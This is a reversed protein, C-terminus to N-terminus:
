MFLSEPVSHETDASQGQALPAPQTAQPEFIRIPSRTRPNTRELLDGLASRVQPGTFNHEPVMLLACNFQLIIEPRVGKLPMLGSAILHALPDRAETRNHVDTMLIGFTAEGVRGLMFRNGIIKQLKIVSRLISQEAVTAGHAQRITSHNVLRVFAVALGTHHSKAHLVAQDCRDAFILESLLGTLADRKALAQERVISAHQARSRLNLAVLLLPIHLIIAITVAHQTVWPSVYVGLLRGITLLVALVLPVHAAFVWMGVRDHRAWAWLSLGLAAAGMTSIYVGIIAAGQWRALGLHAIAAIPGLAAFVLVVQGLRPVRQKLMFIDHLFVMGASAAVAALAAQSLDAWQPLGPWLLLAAIGNYASVALLTVSSYIGYRLYGGDRYIAAQVFCFVIMLATGGFVAGFMLFELHEDTRQADHQVFDMRFYTPTAQRVALLVQLPTGAATALKFVAHRNPHSWTSLAITDGARQQTWAQGPARTYLVAHDLTPMPISLMWDENAQPTLQWKFWLQDRAALRVVLGANNPKFSGSLWAEDPTIQGSSDIWVQAARSANVSSQASLLTFGPFASPSAQDM